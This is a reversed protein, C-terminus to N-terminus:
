KERQQSDSAILRVIAEQTASSSARSVEISSNAGGPTELVLIVAMVVSQVALMWTRGSYLSVTKQLALSVHQIGALGLGDEDLFNVCM